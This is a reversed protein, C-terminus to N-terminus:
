SVVLPSSADRYREAQQVERDLHQRQTVPEYRAANEGTLFQPLPRVLVDDNVAFFFVISCREDNTNRVRHGTAQFVGNTWKELMDGFLVVIQNKEAPADHWEGSADRLELGPATQVILTMCEFDTHAAIGVHEETLPADNLPYHLLRMTSLERSDCGDRFTCAPVNAALALTELVADGIASFGDWCRRVDQQFHPLDPWTNAPTSGTAQYPRGCDFSELHAITGPQYAPEGFMPTWGHKNTKTVRVAEKREDSRAFFNKMQRLTDSVLQDAGPVHDLYFFGTSLCADRIAQVYDQGPLRRFDFSPEKGAGDTRIPDSQRLERTLPMLYGEHGPIILLKGDSIRAMRMRAVM